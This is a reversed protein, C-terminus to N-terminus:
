RKEGAKMGTALEADFRHGSSRTGAAQKFFRGAHVVELCVMVGLMLVADFVYIFAEHSMIYGNFGQAYEVIRVINRVTILLSAAYLARMQRKWPLDSTSGQNSYRAHFNWATGVFVLFIAVQLILGAVVIDQGTKLSSANGSAQLGGGGAQILFCVVDSLVFITTLSRLPVLSLVEARLVRIIRGLIMYITAAFLPPAVLLVTSQVAFAPINDIHSHSYIRTSYGIIEVQAM